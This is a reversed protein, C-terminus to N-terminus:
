LVLDKCLEVWFGSSQFTKIFKISIFDQYIRSKSPRNNETLGKGELQSHFTPFPCPVNQVYLARAQPLLPGLPRTRGMSIGGSSFRWKTPASPSSLEDQGQKEEAKAEGGAELNGFVSHLRVGFTACGRQYAFLIFNYIYIYQIYVYIYM